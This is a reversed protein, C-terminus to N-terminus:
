VFFKLILAPFKAYGPSNGLGTFLQLFNIKNITHTDGTLTYTPYDIM